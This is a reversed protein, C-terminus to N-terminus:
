ELFVEQLRAIKEKNNPEISELESIIDQIDQTNWTFYITRRCAFIMSDSSATFETTSNIPNILFTKEGMKSYKASDSQTLTLENTNVVLFVYENGLLEVQYIKKNEASETSIRIGNNDLYVIDKLEDKTTPSKKTELGTVSFYIIGLVLLVGLLALIYLNKEQPNKNM